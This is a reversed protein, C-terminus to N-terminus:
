SFYASINFFSLKQPITMVITDSISQFKVQKENLFAVFELLHKLSRGLRDLKYVVLIVKHGYDYLITDFVSM